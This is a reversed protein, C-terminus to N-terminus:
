QNRRQEGFKLVITYGVSAVMPQLGQAPDDM